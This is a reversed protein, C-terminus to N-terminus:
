VYFAINGMKINSRNEAEKQNGECIYVVGISM